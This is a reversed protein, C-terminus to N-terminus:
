RIVKVAVTLNKQTTRATTSTERNGKSPIRIKVQRRTESFNPSPIRFKRLSDIEIFKELLPNTSIPKFIEQYFRNYDVMTKIKITGQVKEPLIYDTCWTTMVNDFFLDHVCITLDKIIQFGINKDPINWGILDKDIELEALSSGTGLFPYVINESCGFSCVFNILSPICYKFYFPIKTKDPFESHTLLYQKIAQIQLLKNNKVIYKELKKFCTIYVRKMVVEEHYLIKKDSNNNNNKLLGFINHPGHFYHLPFYIIKNQRPDSYKKFLNGLIFEDNGYDLPNLNSQERGLSIERFTLLRGFTEQYDADTMLCDEIIDTKGIVCMFGCSPSKKSYGYKKTSIPTHWIRSYNYNHTFLYQTQIQTPFLLSARKLYNERFAEVIIRSSDCFGFTHADMFLCYSPPAIITNQHIFQRQRLFFFRMSQGIYGHGPEDINLINKRINSNTGLRAGDKTKFYNSLTYRFIFAQSPDQPIKKLLFIFLYEFTISDPINCLEILTEQVIKLLRTRIKHALIEEYDNLQSQHLLLIHLFKALSSIKSVCSPAEINIRSLPSQFAGESDYMLRLTARPFFEFFSIANILVPFLYKTFSQSIVDRYSDVSSKTLFISATWTPEYSQITKQFSTLKIEALHFLIHKRIDLFGFNTDNEHYIIKPTQSSPLSSTESLNYFLFPFDKLTKKQFHVILFTLKVIFKHLIETNIFGNDDKILNDSFISGGNQNKCLYRILHDAPIDSDVVEEDLLNIIKKINEDTQTTNKMNWQGFVFKYFSDKNTKILNKIIKQRNNM